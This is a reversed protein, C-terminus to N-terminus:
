DEFRVNELQPQREMEQCAQALVWLSAILNGSDVTSVYPPQLPELTRTDYWNLIHGECRELKRLTEMTASCRDIMQEPTLFGLDRASVASMLWMGINTPSTRAATEVRLAEQSNDPPLWNHEPGVLDDFYRWTERAIRRLYRQDEIEIRELKRVAAGNGASGTSFRRLPLGSCFFPRGHRSGSFAAFLGAGAFIRGGACLHPLVAGPICGSADGCGPAVNGCDAVGAPPAPQGVASLLRSRHCGIRSIGSTASFRGDRHSSELRQQSRALCSCRRAVAAGVAAAISRFTAGALVLSLWRVPPPPPPMSSGVSLDSLVLAMPALLSRRLNDLIKWRNILTLPNPLREQEAGDQFGASFGHLSRGIAASGATNGSATARITTPFSNSSNWTRPWDSASMRAKSSITVSCGSSPFVDRSYKTSRESTM